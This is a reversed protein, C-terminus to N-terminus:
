ENNICLYIQLIKFCEICYKKQKFECFDGKRWATLSGMHSTLYPGVSAWCRWFNASSRSRINHRQQFSLEPICKAALEPGFEPRWYKNEASCHALATGLDPKRVEPITKRPLLSVHGLLTGDMLGVRARRSDSSSAMTFIVIPLTYPRYQALNRSFTPLNLCDFFAATTPGASSRHLCNCQGLLLPWSKAASIPGINHRIIVM